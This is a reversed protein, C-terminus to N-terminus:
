AEILQLDKQEVERGRWGCSPLALKHLCEKFSTAAQDAADIVVQSELWSCPFAAVM